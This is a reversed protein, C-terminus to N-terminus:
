NDYFVEDVGSFVSPDSLLEGHLFIESSDNTLFRSKQNEVRFRHANLPIRESQPGSTVDHVRAVSELRETQTIM